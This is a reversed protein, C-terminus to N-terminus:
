ICYRYHYVNFRCFFSDEPFNDLAVRPHQTDYYFQSVVSTSNGAKDFSKVVIDYIGDESGDDNLSRVLGSGDLIELALIDYNQGEVIKIKKQSPVLTHEKTDNPYFPENLYLKITSDDLDVGSTFPNTTLPSPRDGIFVQCLRLPDKKCCNDDAPYSASDPDFEFISPPTTDYIFTSSVIASPNGARDFIVASTIYMGDDSGDDSFPTALIGSLVNPAGQVVNLPITTGFYSHLSMSSLVPDFALDFITARVSDQDTTQPMQNVSSGNEPALVILAPAIPTRDLVFTGFHTSTNGVNDFLTASIRYTGESTIVSQPNAALDYPSLPSTTVLPHAYDNFYELPGTLQLTSWVTSIDSAYISSVAPVDEVDISVTTIASVSTGEVPFFDFVSNNTRVPAVTDVHFADPIDLPAIVNGFIDRGGSFSLLVGGDYRSRVNSVSFQYNIVTTPNTMSPLSGSISGAVGPRDRQTILLDTAQVIPSDFHAEISVVEIGRFQGSTPPIVPALSYAEFENILGPDIIVQTINGSGDNRFIELTAVSDIPDTNDFTDISQILYTTPLTASSSVYSLDVGTFSFFGNDDARTTIVDPAFPLSRYDTDTRPIFPGISGLGNRTRLIPTAINPYGPM